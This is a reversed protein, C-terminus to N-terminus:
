TTLIYDSTRSSEPLEGTLLVDSHKLCGKSCLSLCDQQSGKPKVSGYTWVNDNVKPSGKCLGPGQRNTVGRFTTASYRGEATYTESPDQEQFPDEKTLFHHTAANALFATVRSADAPASDTFFTSQFQGKSDITGDNFDDNEQFFHSVSDSVTENELESGEYWFIFQAFTAASGDRTNKDSKFLEYSKKREEATHTTSWCGPKGCVFCKKDTPTRGPKFNGHGGRRPGGGHRGFRSDRGPGRYTRDTWFAESNTTETTFQQPGPQEATIGIAAQLQNRVGEFTPAPNFLAMKAEPVGRCANLVQM